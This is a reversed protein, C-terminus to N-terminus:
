RPGRHSALGGNALRAPTLLAERQVDASDDGGSM